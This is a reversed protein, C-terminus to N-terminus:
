KLDRLEDSLKNKNLYLLEIMEQFYKKKMSEVKKSLDHLDTEDYNTILHEFLDNEKSFILEIEKNQSMIHKDIIM